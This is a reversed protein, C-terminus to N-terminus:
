TNKRMPICKWAFAFYRRQTVGVPSM